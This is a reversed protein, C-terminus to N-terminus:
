GLYKIAKVLIFFVITLFFLTLWTYEKPYILLAAISAFGCLLGLIASIFVLPNQPKKSNLDMKGALSQFHFQFLRNKVNEM